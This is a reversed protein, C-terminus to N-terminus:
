VKVTGWSKPKPFNGKCVSNLLSTALAWEDRVIQLCGSRTWVDSGGPGEQDLSQGGWNSGRHGECIEPYSGEKEKVKLGTTNLM